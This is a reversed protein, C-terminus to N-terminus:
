EKKIIYGADEVLQELKDDPLDKGNKLTLIMTNTDLDVSVKSVEKQKGFTKELARACFDCVVGLLEVKILQPERKILLPTKKPNNAKAFPVFLLSFTIIMIIKKTM